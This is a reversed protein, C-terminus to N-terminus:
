GRTDSRQIRSHDPRTTLSQTVQSLGSWALGPGQPARSHKGASSFRRNGRKTQTTKSCGYRRRWKQASTQSRSLSIGRAPAGLISSPHRQARGRAFPRFSAPCSAGTERSIPRTKTARGERQDSPSSPHWHPGPGERPCLNIHRDQFSKQALCM